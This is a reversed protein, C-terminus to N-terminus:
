GDRAGWRRRAQDPATPLRSLVRDSWMESLWHKWRQVTTPSVGVADATARVGHWSCQRRLEAEFASAADFVNVALERLRLVNPSRGALMSATEDRTLHRSM